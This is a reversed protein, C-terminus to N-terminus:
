IGLAGAVEPTVKAWTYDALWPDQGATEAPRSTPCELVTRITKALSAASPECITGRASRAVLYRALNDPSATTVVPVGCALAELVAIGFGERDSPSVFVRASKVLAYVEDQDQVDHRFDVSSSIGLTEAQRHLARREPGDGIVRCTVPFGEAHLIAVADLLMGVRKHAMLRGVVVIDTAAPNAKVARIADLDVGNPAVTIAAKPGLVTRLREATQASAAVIEDPLRMAIQEVAWACLGMWGLYERWYEQGWAEHWTVVLRKRKLSAVLRLVLVQFYPIHDAEIVDFRYWLLKLCSLAFWSAQFISRRNRTYMPVLRSIAHFTVNGRQITRPGSWWRMTYVHLEARDALRSTLEHCRLERGGRSYPYVADIVLAVVLRAGQAAPERLKQQETDTHM